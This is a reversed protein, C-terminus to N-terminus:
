FSHVGFSFGCDASVRGWARLGKGGESLSFMSIKLDLMHFLYCVRNTLM